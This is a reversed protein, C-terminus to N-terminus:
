RAFDKPNQSLQSKLEALLVGPNGLDTRANIERGELGQERSKKM